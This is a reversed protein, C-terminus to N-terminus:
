GWPAVGVASGFFAAAGFSFVGGDAGVLWYGHGDPMAAIGVIPANPTVGIGPLSGFFPAAPGNQESPLGFVGGDLGVEWASGNLSAATVGTIEATFNAPAPIPTENGEPSSQGSPPPPILTATGYWGATVTILNSGARAIGAGPVDGVVFGPPIPPLGGAIEDPDPAWAQGFNVPGYVGDVWYGNGSATAALGDAPEQTTSPRLSGYFRADGFAFVGGDGGTLWYGGGDPTATITVIPAAPAIGMGPLSGYFHADGFSFVGGNAQVLWYGGGDPTAAIGAFRSPVVTSTVAFDAAYTTFNTYGDRNTTDGLCSIAVQWRGATVAVAPADSVFEPVEARWQGDGGGPALTSGVQPTSSQDFVINDCKDAPLGKATITVETGVPGRAPTVTITPAPSNTVAAATGAGIPLVGLLGVAALSGILLVFSRV